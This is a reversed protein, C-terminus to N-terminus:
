KWFRVIRRNINELENDRKAVFQLDNILMSMSKRWIIICVICILTEKVDVVSSMWDSEM